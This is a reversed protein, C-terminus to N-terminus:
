PSASPDSREPSVRRLTTPTILGYPSRGSARPGDTARPIPVTCRFRSRIISLDSLGPTPHHKDRLVESNKKGTPMMSWVASLKFSNQILVNLGITV